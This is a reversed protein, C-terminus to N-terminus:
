HYRIRPAGYRYSFLPHHKSHTTGRELRREVEGLMFETVDIIPLEKAKALPLFHLDLLEGSGGLHGAMNAAETMFFRAHFRAPAATPTIARGVYHLRDLAPAVGHARFEQWSHSRVPGTDGPLGLILGTEEFTERVAAMAIANAKMRNGNVGLRDLVAMDLQTAPRVQGDGPSIKGGPFVYVSPFNPNRSHRRGMLVETGQSSRRLIILSAADKPRPPERKEDPTAAKAGPTEAM